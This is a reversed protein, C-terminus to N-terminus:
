LYIERVNGPFMGCYLCGKYSCLCVVQSLNNEDIIISDYLVLESKFKLVSIESTEMNIGFINENHQLLSVFTRNMTLCM